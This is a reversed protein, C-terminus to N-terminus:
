HDITFTTHQLKCRSRVAEGPFHLVLLIRLPASRAAIQDLIECRDFAAAFTHVESRRKSAHDLIATEYSLRSRRDIQTETKHCPHPVYENGRRCLLANHHPMAVPRTRASRVALAVARHEILAPHITGFRGRVRESHDVGT